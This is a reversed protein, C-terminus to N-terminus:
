TPNERQRGMWGMLLMVFVVAAVLFIFGVLMTGSLGLALATEGAPSASDPPPPTVRGQLQALPLTLFVSEFM